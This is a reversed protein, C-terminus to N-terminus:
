IGSDLCKLRWWVEMGGDLTSTLWMTDFNFVGAEELTVHNEWERGRYVLRLPVTGHDNIGLGASAEERLTGFTAGNTYVTLVSGDVMSIHIIGRSQHVREHVRKHKQNQFDTPHM